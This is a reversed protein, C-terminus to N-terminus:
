NSQEVYCGLDFTVNITNPSTPPSFFDILLNEVGGISIELNGAAGTWALEGPLDSPAANDNGSWLELGGLTIMQPKQSPADIWSIHITSITITVGSSNTIELQLQNATPTSLVGSV